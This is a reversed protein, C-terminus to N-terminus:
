ESVKELWFGTMEKYIIKLNQSITFEQAKKIERFAEQAYQGCRRVTKLKGIGYFVVLYLQFSKYIITGCEFRITHYQCPFNLRYRYYHGHRYTPYQIYQVITYVCILKTLLM